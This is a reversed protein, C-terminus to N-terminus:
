KVVRLPAAIAGLSRRVAAIRRAYGSADALHHRTRDSTPASEAMMLSIQHRAYLCNLDM